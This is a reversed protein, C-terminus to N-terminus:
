GAYGEAIFDAFLVGLRKTDERWGLDRKNLITPLQEKYPESLHGLIFDIFKEVTEVKNLSENPEIGALSVGLSNRALGQPETFLPITDDFYVTEYGLKKPDINGHLLDNRENMLSHFAKYIGNKSDIPKSFGECNIHLLKIRVDIDKRLYDQYLRQDNKIEERVLVFIVFNIFSEAWVPCMLHLSTSLEQARTYRDSVAKIKDTFEYIETKFTDQDSAYFSPFAQPDAPLDFDKKVIEALEESYKNVIRKLRYYPNYFLRWNELGKKVEKLKKGFREFDKKIEAPTLTTTM